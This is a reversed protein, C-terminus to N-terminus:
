FLYEKIESATTWQEYNTYVYRRLDRLSYSAFKSKIRHIQEVVEDPSDHLIKDEVLKRGEDTLQFRTEQVEAKAAEEDDDGLLYDLSLETEEAAWADADTSAGAVPASTLLGLNELFELDEYLGSSYPGFKYAQFGDSDPADADPLEPQEAMFMYKQLRTIGEVATPVDDDGVYLMLLLRKRDTMSM